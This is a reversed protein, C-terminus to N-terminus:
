GLSRAYQVNCPMQHRCQFLRFQLCVKIGALVIAYFRSFSIDLSRLIM